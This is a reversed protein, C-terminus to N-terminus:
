IYNKGNGYRENKLLGVMFYRKCYCATLNIESKFYIRKNNKM